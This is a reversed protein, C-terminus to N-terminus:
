EVLLSTRENRTTRFLKKQTCNLPERSNGDEYVVRYYSEINLERNMISIDKDFWMHTILQIVYLM